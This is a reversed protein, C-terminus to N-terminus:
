LGRRRFREAMRDYKAAQDALSNLAGHKNMRARPRGATSEYRLTRAAERCEEAKAAAWEAKTKYYPRKRAVPESM